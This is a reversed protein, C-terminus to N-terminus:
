DDRSASKLEVVAQRELRQVRGQKDVFVLAVKMPAKLPLSPPGLLEGAQPSSRAMREAIAHLRLILDGLERSEGSEACYILVGGACRKVQEKSEVTRFGTTVLRNARVPWMEDWTSQIRVDTAAFLPLGHDKLVEDITRPTAASEHGLVLILMSVATEIPSM